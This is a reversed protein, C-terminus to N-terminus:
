SSQLHRAVAQATFFRNQTKNKCYLRYANDTLWRGMFLKEEDSLEEGMSQMHTPLAARFSHGRLKRLVHLHATGSYITEIALDLFRTLSRHPIPKGNFDILWPAEPAQHLQLKMRQYTVYARVPCLKQLPGDPIRPLQVRSGALQTVKESGFFIELGIVKNNEVMLSLDKELLTTRISYATTSAGCLDSLRACAWFAILSATFVAQVRLDNWLQHGQSGMSALAHALMSLSEKTHAERIPAEAVVRPNHKQNTLGTVLRKFLPTDRPPSLGKDLLISNYSSAYRVMTAPALHPKLRILRLLLLDKDGPRPDKFIPREPILKTLTREISTLTTRTSKALNSKLLSQALSLDPSISESPLGQRLNSEVDLSYTMPYVHKSTDSVKLCTTANVRKEGKTLRRDVLYRNRQEVSYFLSVTPPAPLILDPLKYEIETKCREDWKEEYRTFDQIREGRQAEVTIHHM